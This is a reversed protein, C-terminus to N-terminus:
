LRDILAAIVTTLEEEDIPKSVHMQFGAQMARLCDETCGYATLAIARTRKVREDKHTRLRKM